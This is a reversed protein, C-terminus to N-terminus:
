PPFVSTAEAFRLISEASGPSILLYSPLCSKCTGAQPPTEDGIDCHQCEPSNCRDINCDTQNHPCRVKYGEAERM